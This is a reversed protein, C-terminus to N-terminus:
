AKAPRKVRDYVLISLVVLVWVPYIGMGPIAETVLGFLLPGRRGLIFFLAAATALDLAWEVPPAFTFAISLVDSVAAVGFALMIQTRSHRQFPAAAEVSPLTILKDTEM